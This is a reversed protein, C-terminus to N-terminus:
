KKEVLEVAVSVLFMDPELIAENLTPTASAPYSTSAASSHDNLFSEAFLSDMAPVSLDATGVAVPTTPHPPLPDM